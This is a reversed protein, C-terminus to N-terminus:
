LGGKMVFVGDVMTKKMFANNWVEGEGLSPTDVMTKEKFYKNRCDGKVVSVGDVM